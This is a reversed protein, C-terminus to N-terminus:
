LLRLIKNIIIYEEIEVVRDNIVELTDWTIVETGSIFRSHKKENSYWLLERIIKSIMIQLIIIKSATLDNFWDEENKIYNLIHIVLRDKADSTQSNLTNDINRYVIYHNSHKIIKNLM